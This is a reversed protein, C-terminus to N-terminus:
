SIRLGDRIKEVALFFRLTQEEAWFRPRFISGYVFGTHGGHQTLLPCVYPSQGACETPFTNGQIFPDDYASILLLPRRVGGLFQGCSVKRWYDAADRFGHIPATALTDFQEFTTSKLVAPLDIIGPFQRDKVIAKKKLTRLFKIRYPRMIPRDLYPASVPLDYPSGIAAGGAVGAPLDDGSQGFWKALVNGGLSYGVVYLRGPRERLIKRALFDVDATEGMHYMRRNRNIEVGCSRHEMTIATWGINGIAGHMGQIYRSRFSGELGHLLLVTPADPKGPQVWTDLFDGDPTDVRVKEVPPLLPRKRFLAPWVTQAHAGPLWWAPRFPHRGLEAM